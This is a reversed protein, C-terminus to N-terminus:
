RIIFNECFDSKSLSEVNLKSLTLGTPYPKLNYQACISDNYIKYAEGGDSILPISTHSTFDGNGCIKDEIVIVGKPIYPKISCSTFLIKGLQINGSKFATKVQQITNKNLSNTYFLYKKFHEVSVTSMVIVPKKEILAFSVYKSLLRTAFDDKGHLPYQFFYAQIFIAFSIFYGIILGIVIIRKLLSNLINDILSVIGVSIFIILVPFILVSHSYNPSVEISNFFVEPITAILLISLLFFGERRKKNFIFAILIFVLDLYYIVGHNYLRFFGDGTMVLFDASFSSFFNQTLARLYVIPKNVIMSNLPSELSGNRDSNIKEIVHISNPTLLEDLRSSKSNSHLSYIYFILFLLSLACLLIYYKGYKKKNAFFYCYISVVIIFPLFVLKTGIYSYFATLFIPFAFLIKKGKLNLMTYLGLLYFFMAPVVEYSARGLVILFPNISSIIMSVIATKQGFFKKSILYILCITGISMLVYPLRTLPLSFNFPGNFPILLIYPLEAKVSDTGPYHFKFVDLTYIKDALDKNTLFFSKANLSYDIEDTSIGPAVSGIAYWRILFAFLLILVLPLISFIKKFM